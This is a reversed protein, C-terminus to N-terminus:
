LNYLDVNLLIINVIEDITFERDLRDELVERIDCVRDLTNSQLNVSFVAM